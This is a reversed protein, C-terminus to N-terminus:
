PNMNDISRLMLGEFLLFGGLVCIPTAGILFAGRLFDKGQRM